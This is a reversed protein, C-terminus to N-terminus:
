ESEKRREDEEEYNASTFHSLLDISTTHNLARVRACARVCM